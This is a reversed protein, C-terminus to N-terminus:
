NIKGGYHRSYNQSANVRSLLALSYYNYVAVINNYIVLKKLEFIVSTVATRVQVKVLM